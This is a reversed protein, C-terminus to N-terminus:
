LKISSTKGSAILVSVQKTRESQKGKDPRFVVTYNGPQLNVTQQQKISKDSHIGVPFDYIKELRETVQIFISAVGAEGPTVMLTGAKPIKISNIKGQEILINKQIIRPLTLIELDYIGVLYRQQTNADQVYIIEHEGAKRVICPTSSFTGASTETKLELTGLPVDAAIINHTGAVLEINKKQVKPISHVELDYKFKSDLTLTDPIGIATLTHIFNYRVAHTFHDFLTLEVNTTTPNGFADILNVQCTTPNLVKSIVIRITSSLMDENQVDYFNGLCEFKKKLSDTLGLGVIFPRLAIHKAEMQAALDCINGGCTENGDTILIIANTAISDPFDNLSQSLSYQIPTQGQPHLQDLRQSIAAANGKGFAVELKSDKCNNENRPSQHGFVRLAFEVKSNTKAVSDVSNVLINKALEFKATGNWKGKMSGSADLVFLIRTTQKSFQSFSILPSFLTTLLLLYSTFRLLHHSCCFLKLFSKLVGAIQLSRHENNM